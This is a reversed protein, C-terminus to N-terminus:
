FLEGEEMSFKWGDGHKVGQSSKRGSSDPFFSTGGNVGAESLDELVKQNLILTGCSTDALESHGVAAM